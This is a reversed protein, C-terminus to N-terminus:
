ISSMGPYEDLCSKETGVVAPITEAQRGNPLGGERCNLGRVPPKVRIGQWHLTTLVDTKLKVSVKCTTCSTGGVSKGRYPHM